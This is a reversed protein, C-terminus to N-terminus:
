AGTLIMWVFSQKARIEALVNPDSFKERLLDEVFNRLARREFHKVIGGVFYGGIVARGVIIFLGAVDIVLSGFANLLGPFDLRFISGIIHGLDKVVTAAAHVIEKVVQVIGNIIGGVINAVICLIDSANCVFDVVDDVADQVADGAADVAEDVADAVTDVASEVADGVASAASDVADVVDDFFSMAPDEEGLSISSSRQGLTLSVPRPRGFSIFAVRRCPWM